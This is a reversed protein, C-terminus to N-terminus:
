RLRVRPDAAFYLLDVILNITLYAVALLLTVGLVAPYDSTTVANVAYGGLGPWDFLYEIVVAGGLMYGFSLGVTTLLPILTAKLAYRSYIKLPPLGMARATMVHEQSLVEVMTSRTMRIILALVGLSLATVPLILHLLADRFVYMNGQILSDVLLLGSGPQMPHNILTQPDLRGQLPLWGLGGAFIMQLLIGAFFQPVAGMWASGLRLTRDAARGREVAAFVGLPIGLALAVLMALGTLDLTASSRAVLDSLVPQHTAMSIGLDGRLVSQLYRMFQVPLPKDLGLEARAKAIEAASPRGGLMMEVPSAPMMHSITFTLLLVGFVVVLLLALRKAVYGWIM